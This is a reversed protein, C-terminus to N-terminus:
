PIEFTWFTISVRDPVTTLQVDGESKLGTWRLVDNSDLVEYNDWDGLAYADGSLPNLSSIAATGNAGRATAIGNVTDFATAPLPIDVRLSTGEKIRLTGGNVTAVIAAVAVQESNTELLSM